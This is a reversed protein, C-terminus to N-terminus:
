QQNEKGGFKDQLLKDVASTAQAEQAESLSGIEESAKLRADRIAELAKRDEVLQAARVSEMKEKMKTSPESFLVQDM